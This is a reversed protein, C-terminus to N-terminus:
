RESESVAPPVAPAASDPTAGSKREASAPAAGGGPKARDAAARGPGHDPAAEPSRETSAANAATVMASDPRGGHLVAAQLLVACKVMLLAALTAITAPLLRPPPIKWM